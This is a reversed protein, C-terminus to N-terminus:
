PFDHLLRRICTCLMSGPISLAFWLLIFQPCIQGSVDLPMASYDWVQMDLALNVLCGTYYELVTIGATSLLWKRLVPINLASIRYMLLFGIGGCFFMTWHTWGRWLLEAACYLGAGSLFILSYEAM